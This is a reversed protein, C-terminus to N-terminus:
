ILLNLPNELHQKFVKLWRAGVAGDVVRHDSSLTVSMNNTWKLSNPSEECFKPKKVTSGIALICSQPPNIVASFSSVGMTGLNSITFTGGQYEEPLLKNNKAKEVLEKTRENIQSLSKENANKVIPTILGNGLDVAFSVDVNYFRHIKDGMWYSNTQPEELCAKSVAKIIFDNVSLKTGTKEFIEKKLKLLNDMEIESELYYHPITRKSESLREAIVKRMTSVPIEEYLSMELKERPKEIIKEKKPKQETLSISKLDLVDQQIIRNNPGSGNIKLNNVNLGQENLLSKARPSIFIKGIDKIEENNVPPTTKEQKEPIEEQVSNESKLNNVTSGKLDDQTFDKFLSVDKENDVLLFLTTGVDIQEGKDALIKAVYGEEQNEFEMTAKDTELDAIKDGPNIEQGVEIEWHVIKGSTMTPSLAPMKIENFKPFKKGFYSMNMKVLSVAKKLM